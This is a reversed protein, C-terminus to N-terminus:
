QERGQAIDDVFSMVIQWKAVDREPGTMDWFGATDALVALKTLVRNSRLRWCMTNLLQPAIGYWNAITAGANVAPDLAAGDNVYFWDIFNFTGPDAARYATVVKAARARITPNAM